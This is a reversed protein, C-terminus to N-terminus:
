IDEQLSTLKGSTPPCGATVVQMKFSAALVALFLLAEMRTVLLTEARDFHKKCIYIYIGNTRVM